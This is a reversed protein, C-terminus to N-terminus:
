NNNQSGAKKIADIAENVFYGFAIVSGIIQIIILVRIWTHNPLIDGFNSSTAAGASFYMFDVVNLRNLRPVHYKITLDSIEVQKKLIAELLNSKVKYVAYSSDGIKKNALYLDKDFYTENSRSYLEAKLQAEELNLNAIKVNINAQTLTTHANSKVGDIKKISDLEALLQAKRKEISVTKMKVSEDLNIKYSNWLSDNLAKGRKELQTALTDNQAKIKNLSDIYLFAKTIEQNVKLVSKEESKYFNSPLDPITVSLPITQQNYEESVM